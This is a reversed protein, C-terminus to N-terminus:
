PFHQFNVQIDCFLETLSGLHMCEHKGLYKNFRNTQLDFQERCDLLNCANTM